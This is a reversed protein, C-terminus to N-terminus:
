ASLHSSIAVKALGDRGKLPVNHNIILLIVIHACM